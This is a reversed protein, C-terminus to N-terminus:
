RAVPLPIQDPRDRLLSIYPHASPIEDLDERPTPEKLRSGDRDVALQGYLTFHSIDPNSPATGIKSTNAIINEAGDKVVLRKPASADDPTMTIM